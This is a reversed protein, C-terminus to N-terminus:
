SAAEGALSAVETELFAEWETDSLVRVARLELRFSRWGPNDPVPSEIALLRGDDEATWLRTETLGGGEIRYRRKRAELVHYAWEPSIRAILRMWADRDIGDRQWVALPHEAPVVQVTPRLEESTPRVLVELGPTEPLELSHALRGRYLPREVAAEAGAFDLLPQYDVGAIEVWVGLGVTTEGDAAFHRREIGTRERIWEDSTDMIKELDTNHVVRAPLYSGTGIIRANM